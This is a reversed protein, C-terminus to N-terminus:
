DIGIVDRFRITQLVSGAADTIEFARDDVKGGHLVIEAVMERASQQAESVADDLTPLNMGDIDEEYHGGDRLHFYFLM